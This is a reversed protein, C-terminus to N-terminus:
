GRTLLQIVGHHLLLQLVCLREFIDECPLDTVKKPKAGLSRILPAASKKIGIELTSKDRARTFVASENDSDIKCHIGYMLRVRCAESVVHASAEPQSNMQEFHAYAKEQSDNTKSMRQDFSDLILDPSLKDTWAKMLDTM